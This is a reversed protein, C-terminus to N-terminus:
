PVMKKGTEEVVPGVPHVKSVRQWLFGSSVGKGALPENNAGGMSPAAVTASAATMTATAAAAGPKPPRPALPKPPPPPPPRRPSGKGEAPSQSKDIGCEAELKELDRIAQDVRKLVADYM